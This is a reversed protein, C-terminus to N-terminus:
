IEQRRGVPQRPQALRRLRRFHFGQLVAALLAVLQGVIKERDVAAHQAAALRDPDLGTLPQQQVDEIGAGASTRLRAKGPCTKLTTASSPLGTGRWASTGTSHSPLPSRMEAITSIFRGPTQTSPSVLSSSRPRPM